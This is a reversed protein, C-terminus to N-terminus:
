EVVKTLSFVVGATERRSQMQSSDFNFKRPLFRFGSRGFWLRRQNEYEEVRKSIARAYSRWILYRASKNGILLSSNLAWHRRQYQRSTVSRGFLFMYAWRETSVNSIRFSHLHNFCKTTNRNRKEISRKDSWIFILVFSFPHSLHTSFHRNRNWEIDIHRPTGVSESDLLDYFNM